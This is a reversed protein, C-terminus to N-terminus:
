GLFGRDEPYNFAAAVDQNPHRFVHLLHRDFGQNLSCNDRVSTNVRILVVNVSSQWLSAVFVFANTMTRAFVSAIVVTVSKAFNVDVGHLTKPRKQSRPQTRM